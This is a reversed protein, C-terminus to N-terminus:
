VPTSHEVEGTETDVKLTLYYNLYKILKNQVKRNKSNCASIWLLYM